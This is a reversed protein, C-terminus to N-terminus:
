PCDAPPQGGEFMYEIMYILDGINVEGSADLDGTVPDMPPEGAGFMYGAFYVLDSITIEGSPDCDVNGRMGDCCNYLDFCHPGDWAPPFSGVTGGYAWLWRGAPPFWTSDICLENGASAPDSIVLSFWYATDSYAQPMALGAAGGFGITDADLGDVNVTYVRCILDFFDRVYEIIGTDTVIWSVTPDSGYIKFGNTVGKVKYTSSYNTIRFSFTVEDNSLPISGDYAGTVHDLSVACMDQAIAPAAFVLTAVIVLATKM